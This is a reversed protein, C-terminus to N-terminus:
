ESTTKDEFLEQLGRQLTRASVELGDSEKLQLVAEKWPPRRDLSYHKLFARAAILSIKPRGIGTTSVETNPKLDAKELQLADCVLIERYQHRMKETSLKEATQDTVCISWGDFPQMQEPNAIAIFKSLYGGSAQELLRYVNLSICYTDRDFFLNPSCFGQDDKLNSWPDRGVDVEKAIRDLREPNIKALDCDFPVDSWGQAELDLIYKYYVDTQFFPLDFRFVLGASSVLYIGDSFAVEFLAKEILEDKSLRASIWASTQGKDLEFVGQFLRSVDM